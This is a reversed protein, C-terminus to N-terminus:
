RQSYAAFITVVVFYMLSSSTSSRRAGSFRTWSDFELPPTVKEGTKEATISGQGSEDIATAENDEVGFAPKDSPSLKDQERCCDEALKVQASKCTTESEKFSDILFNYVEECTTPSNNFVINGSIGVQGPQCLNCPADSETSAQNAIALCLRREESKNEM